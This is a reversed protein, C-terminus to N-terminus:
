SQPAPGAAPVTTGLEALWRDLVEVAVEVAAPLAATVPDSLGLSLDVLEPVIGVVEIQEPEHGLMRAATLVDLLGVQHPSLKASLMRPIQDGTLHVVTGPVRGAVADLILLRGAEQVVPVLEMGGTWGDVYEVQADPRALSLLRLLELGAGDDAMITNGVGLVTITARVPAPITGSM